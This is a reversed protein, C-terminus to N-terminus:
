KELLKNIENMYSGVSKEWNFKESVEQKASQSFEKRKTEDILLKEISKAIANIDKAEILIGSKKDTIIERTGGVDTAVIACGCAGAELVTTPLGENYSPNVFIDSIKMISLVENFNKAGLFEIKNEIKLKKTLDKLRKEEPGDGVILLIFNDFNIKATAEVLDIIGKGSILRGVYLVIKKDKMKEDLETNPSIKKIEEFPMGRYIVASPKKTFGSVFRAASQSPAINLDSFVLAIRGLIDTYIRATTAILLSTSKTYDSAHEIHIWKKRKIKTYILALTASHFFMTISFVIDFDEKFLSFFMKWFKLSWFKPLPFNHVPEFSPYRIVVVGNENSIDKKTKPLDPTFVTVSLGKEVLKEHLEIAHKELGGIHPPYYPVFNLIKIM